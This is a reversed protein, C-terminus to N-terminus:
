PRRTPVGVGSVHDLLAAPPRARFMVDTAVSTVSPQRARRRAEHVLVRVQQYSPRPLGLRRAKAGIRRGIEAYRLQERRTALQELEALLRPSIRPAAEVM